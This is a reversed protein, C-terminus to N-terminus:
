PRPTKSEFDELASKLYKVVRQRYPWTMSRLPIRNLWHHSPGYGTGRKRSLIMNSPLAKQSLTAICVRLEDLSAFQLEARDIEIHYMPYGKGPTPSPMPPSFATAKYREKHDTEIHVWYTM